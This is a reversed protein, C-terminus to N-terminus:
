LLEGAKRRLLLCFFPGGLLATIVGVPLEAGGPLIVRALVDSWVLLLGGLLGANVILPRHDAGQYLRVLHPAALGLFGIVGCVAVCAGTMASAGALLILRSRSVNVGLQGAQTEGLMLLDLDRSCLAAAALGLLFYPFFLALDALGRGQFGGMIWFVIGAVSEENLAKVLSILASLFSATVIGALVLTERRLRGGARGLALVALLAGFAGCLAFFPIATLGPAFPLTAAGGLGLAIAVSAGFAAGSSVGLTFPDALPNRLVGQFIVGSISLAAGACYALLTRGFRMSVVVTWVLPDFDEKSVGPLLGLSSALIKMAEDMGLPLAGFLCAAVLSVLSLPALVAAARVAKRRGPRAPATKLACTDPTQRM